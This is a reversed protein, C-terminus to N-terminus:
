FLVTKKKQFNKEKWFIHIKVKNSKKKFSISKLYDLGPLPVSVGVTTGIWDIVLLGAISLVIILLLMLIIKRFDGRNRIAM